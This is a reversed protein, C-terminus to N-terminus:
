PTPRPEVKYGHIDIGLLLVDDEYVDLTMVPQVYGEFNAFHFTYSQDRLVLECGVCEVNSFESDRFLRYGIDPLDLPGPTDSPQQALSLEGTALNVELRESVFPTEDGKCYPEARYLGVILREGGGDHIVDTVTANPPPDACFWPEEEECGTAALAIGCLFLIQNRM